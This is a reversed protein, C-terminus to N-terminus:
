LFVAIERLRETAPDPLVAYSGVEEVSAFRGLLDRAEVVRQAEDATLPVSRLLHDRGVNNFDVLGGDDFDRALDPRGVGIRTALAPDQIALDRYQQRLRRREREARVGPLSDRAHMRSRRVLLWIMLGIGGLWLTLLCTGGLNGLVDTPVDNEDQPAIGVLVFALITLAAFGGTTIFMSRRFRRDETETLAGWLPVATATFGCCLVSSALVLWGSIPIGLWPPRPQSGPWGPPPNATVLHNEGIRRTTAITQRSLIAHTPYDAAVSSVSM